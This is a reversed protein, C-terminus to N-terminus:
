TIHKSSNQKQTIWQMNNTTYGGSNDIRDISPALARIFGSEEWERHLDKFRELNSVEYCWANYEDKSCIKRGEVAYPRTARGEVRAKMSAYRHQFIRKTSHRQRNKDYGKLDRNKQYLKKCEKCTNLRGDAMAAHRYFEEITKTKRCDKCEKEM